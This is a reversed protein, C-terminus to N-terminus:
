ITKFVLRFMDNYISAERGMISRIKYSNNDIPDRVTKPMFVRKPCSNTSLRVRAAKLSLGTIRAVAESDTYQGDDLLYQKLKAVESPYITMQNITM